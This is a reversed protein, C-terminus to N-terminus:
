NRPGIRYLHITHFTGDGRPIKRVEPTGWGPMQFDHIVVRAGPHLQKELLPRLRGLAEPLLYLAVVDASRVDAEFMNGRILTVRDEVGNKQINQKALVFVQPDLEVGVGRAGFQRAAAVLIRADGCGLDFVTENPKVEAFRLMGDVVEAPTSLYPSAADRGQPAHLALPGREPKFRSMVGVLALNGLAVLLVLAAITWLAIRM